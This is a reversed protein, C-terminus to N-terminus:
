PCNDPCGLTPPFKIESFDDTEFAVMEQLTIEQLTGSGHGFTYEVRWLNNIMTISTKIIRSGCQCDDIEDM